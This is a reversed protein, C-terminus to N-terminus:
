QNRRGRPRRREGGPPEFQGLQDTMAKLSLGRDVDSARVHLRSDSKHGIVLGAGRLKMTRDLTAAVQHALTCHRVVDREDSPLALLCAWHEDTLLRRRAM